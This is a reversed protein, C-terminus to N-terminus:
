KQQSVPKIKSLLDLARSAGSSVGASSGAPKAATQATAAHGTGATAAVGTAEKHYVLANKFYVLKFAKSIGHLTESHGIYFYGGPRLANYFNRTLQRKVEDSFYIMVNRCFIADLNSNVSTRRPDNLNMHSFNVLSKVSPNVRYLDGTKTFYRTLIDPRVNRMTIGSFEGRRAKQLVQESIDNAIIEVNWNTLDRIKEHIIISLTYPEEGTSCGASWIRLRKQGCQKNKEDILLPLVEDSFSLLQPENRFFSTENTTILNLLANFEKLSTDYKVHYFYDRYTKIGLDAMRKVLRNRVLYTKNEAFFIGCKEHIFDRFMLFDERSMQPDAAPTVQM